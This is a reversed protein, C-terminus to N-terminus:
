APVKMLRSITAIGVNDSQALKKLTAGEARHQRSGEAAFPSSLPGAWTSGRNRGEATRTRIIDREVDVAGGVSCAYPLRNGTQGLTGRNLASFDGGSEFATRL